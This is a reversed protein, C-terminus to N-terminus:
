EHYAIAKDFLAEVERDPAKTCLTVAVAAILGCLFGPIIEYIGTNGLFALWLIDVAAGVIIGTLAGQFNFRKWYLSLLIAPGFAAGFVGWANSVLKMITGANPNTAIVLAIVAIILVVMRGTWLMERDSAQNNRVLPKYVDSSFASAAAMQCSLALGKQFVILRVAPIYRRIGLLLECFAKRCRFFTLILILDYM